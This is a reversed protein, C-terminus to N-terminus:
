SKELETVELEWRQHRDDDMANGISM